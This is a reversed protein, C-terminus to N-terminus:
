DWTTTNRHFDHDKKPTLLAKEYLRDTKPPKLLIKPTQEKFDLIPITETDKKKM